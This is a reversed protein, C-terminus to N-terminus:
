VSDAVRQADAADIRVGPGMTSSIAISKLYTGKATSPKLRVITALLMAINENLQEESMSVRGVPAHVIGAKEVRFEIKGLRLERVTAAVADPAVVTGVKPNPM